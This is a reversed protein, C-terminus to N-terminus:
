SVQIHFNRFQDAFQIIMEISQCTLDNRVRVPGTRKAPPLDRLDDIVRSLNHLVAKKEADLALGEVAMLKRFLDEHLPRGAQHHLLIQIQGVKCSLCRHLVRDNDANLIRAICHGINRGSIVSIRSRFHLDDTDCAGLALSRRRIHDLRDQLCCPELDAKDAGNLDQIAVLPDRRVVRCRLGSDKLLREPVHRVGSHLCNDHLDGGLGQLHVARLSKQEVEPNEGIQRRVVYTGLLVLVKIFIQGALAKEEPLASDANEVHIVLVASLDHVAVGAAHLSVSQASRSVQVRLIQLKNFLVSLQADGEIYLSKQVEMRLHRCGSFEADIVRQARDGDASVKVDCRLLNLFGKELDVDSSAYLHYLDAIVERQHDIVCVILHGQVAKQRREPFILGVPQDAEKAAAAIAGFKAAELHSLHASPKRLKADDSGVIGPVFFRHVNDRVNHGANGLRVALVDRDRVSLVRDAIRDSVALRAVDDDKGSLAM